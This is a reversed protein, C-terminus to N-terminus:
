NQNSTGTSSDKAVEGSRSAPFVWEALSSISKLALCSVVIQIIGSAALFKGRGADLEFLGLGCLVGDIFAFLGHGLWTLIIGAAVVKFIERGPLQVMNSVATQIQRNSETTHQHNPDM